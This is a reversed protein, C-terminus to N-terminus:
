KLVFHSVSLIMLCSCICLSINKAVLFFHSGLIPEIVTNQAIFYFSYQTAAKLFSELFDNAGTRQERKM